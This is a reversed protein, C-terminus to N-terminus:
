PLLKSAKTVIKLVKFDAILSLYDWKCAALDIVSWGTPGPYTYQGPSITQFDAKTM